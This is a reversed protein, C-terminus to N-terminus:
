ESEPPPRAAVTPPSRRPSHAQKLALTPAVPLLMAMAARQRRVEADFARCGDCQAVHHRLEGRRRAGGRLVALQERISGCDAERAVHRSMLSERAQFVLAKIKTAPVELILAIEEHSMAGLEALVLAARQDDPLRQLDNLLVRLDERQEVEASLGATTSLWAGADELALHERRGRLVSLCRNRAIAYLWAKLSIERDDALLARYAAAFTHQVADEAEERSGLMHRCFALIGAHHRDYVAEFADRSGARVHAVLRSDDAVRLARRSLALQV